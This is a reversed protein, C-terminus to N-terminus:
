DALRWAEMIATDSHLQAAHDFTCGSLLIEDAGTIAALHQIQATVSDPTGHVSERLMDRLRQSQRPTKGFSAITAPDELPGFAGTTKSHVHAWAESTALAEAEDASDAAIATVNLVVMPEPAFRSPRFADRYRDTVLRGDDGPTTIRPGGIVLPLGLTAAIDAGAGTALLFVPIEGPEPVVPFPADNVLYSLLEALDSTMEETDYTERRLAARIPRTFGLSRGIGLDVRGPHLTALTTAQEAVILPQHNPLMVGGSGIRIRSTAQLLAMMVIAPASGAVGPVGHHEATWFRHFGLSEARQARDITCRFAEAAGSGATIHSRDHISLPIMQGRTRNM